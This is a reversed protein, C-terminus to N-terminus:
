IYNFIKMEKKLNKEIKELYHNDLNNKWNGVKGKNFFKSDNSEKFNSINEAEKLKNFNSTELINKIKEKNNLIKIKFNSEFFNLIKELIFAKNTILDEFKIILVPMTYKKMMISNVHNKWSSILVKPKIRAPLTSNIHDNWTISSNENTILDVSNSISTKDFNKWSLVIDRPDRVLYIIGRIQNENVYEHGNFSNMINHSKFFTFDEKFNLNSKEKIKVHYKYLTSLNNLGLFDKENVKKIFELFIKNELQGIYKLNEFDVKGDQTFFLSTIILRMLTNGSKPYSSIFFIHKSM